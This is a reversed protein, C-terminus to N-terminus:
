GQLSPVPGLLNPTKPSKPNLTQPKPNLTQPKPNLTQPKPNPIRHFESRRLKPLLIEPRALNPHPASYDSEVGQCKSM